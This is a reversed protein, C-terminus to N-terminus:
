QPPGYIELLKEYLQRKSMHSYGRIKHLSGLAGLQRLSMSELDPRQPPQPEEKAESQSAKAVGARYGVRLGSKFCEGPTGRRGIRINRDTCRISDQSYASGSMMTKVQEYEATGRKPITWKRGVNFNQLANVWPNPM